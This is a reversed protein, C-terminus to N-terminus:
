QGIKGCRQINSIKNSQFWTTNEKDTLSDPICRCPLPAMQKDNAEIDNIINM